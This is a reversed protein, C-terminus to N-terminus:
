FFLLGAWLRVADTLWRFAIAGELTQRWQLYAPPLGFFLGTFILAAVAGLPNSVWLGAVELLSYPVIAVLYIGVILTRRAPRSALLALCLNIVFFRFAVEGAVATGVAAWIADPLGESSDIRGTLFLYGGGMIALPLGVRMGVAMSQLVVRPQRHLFAVRVGREWPLLVSGALFALLTTAAIVNAGPLNTPSYASLWVLGALIFGVIGMQSTLRQWNRWIVVLAALSVLYSAWSRVRSFDGDGATLTAQIAAIYVALFVLFIGVLLGLGTVVSRSKVPASKQKSM